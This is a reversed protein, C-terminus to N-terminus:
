ALPVGELAARCYQALARLTFPKGLFLVGPDRQQQGSADRDYGSIMLMPLDARRQRLHRVLEWGGMEPMVLDSIVLDIEGANADYLQLADRGHRAEIVTYGLRVLTRSTARRVAMEDEVLLVTESGGPLEVEARHSAVHPAGDETALPLTVRFVTERGPTSEVSVQGGSQQVIAYVMALGLGTGKGPSKTTFFPEFIRDRIDDPIGVGTDAVELELASGTAAGSQGADMSESKRAVIRVSGGAPMADRANMALNMLVQGLQGADGLIAGLNPQIDVDLDIATGLLRRLLPETEAVVDAIYLRRLEVPQRRGFALLQRTILAARDAARDIEKAEAHGPNAPSLIGTLMSANLKIVALLNNFDHAIGGALQGVAEMKQAQRLATETNQREIAIQALATADEVIQLHEMTPPTVVHYYLAFTGLLRGDSALIPTSWGARLDHEIALARFAVTLPDSLTDTVIVAERRHAATGCIASSPGIPLQDVAEVFVPPLSPAAAVRLVTGSEDATMISCLVGPANREVWRALAELSEHMPRGRAILTLVEQQGHAYDMAM